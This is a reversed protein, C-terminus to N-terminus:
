APSTPRSTPASAPPASGAPCSPRRDLHARRDRPRDLHRRRARRRGAPHGPHPAGRPDGARRRVAAGAGRGLHRAGSRRARGPLAQDAAQPRGAVPRRRPRGRRRRPRGAAASAPMLRARRPHRRDPELRALRHRHRRLPRGRGRGARGPAGAATARSSTTPRSRCRCWTTTAATSAGSRCTSRCSDPRTSRTTRRARRRGSSPRSRAVGWRERRVGSAPRARGGPQDGTSRRSRRRGLRRLPRAGGGLDRPPRRGLPRPHRRTSLDLGDVTACPTSRPPWTTSRPRCAVATARGPPVRHQADDM